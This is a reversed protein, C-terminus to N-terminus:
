YHSRNKEHQEEARAKRVRRQTLANAPTTGTKAPLFHLLDLANILGVFVFAIHCGLIHAFHGFLLCDRM